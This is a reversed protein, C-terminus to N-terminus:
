YASTHQQVSISTRVKGVTTQIDTAAARIAPVHISTWEDVFRDRDDGVWHTTRLTATLRQLIDNMRAVQADLSGAVTTMQEINMGLFGSSAQM